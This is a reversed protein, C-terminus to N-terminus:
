NIISLKPFSPLFAVVPRAKEKALSLKGSKTLLIAEFAAEFAIYFCDGSTNQSFPTRRFKVFECSFVQALAEKKILSQCLHKGTLKTFNRLVRRKM